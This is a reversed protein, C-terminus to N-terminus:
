LNFGIVGVSWMDTLYSQPEYRLVEPAVFVTTGVMTKPPTKENFKIAFGFDIIKIHGSDKSTYVLNEPKLDRHIIGNEHIYDVGNLLQSMIDIVQEETLLEDKAIQDYM